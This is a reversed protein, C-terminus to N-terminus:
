KVPKKRSRSLSVNVTNSTTGLIDAIEAPPVGARDLVLILDGQTLEAQVSLLKALLANSARLQVLLEEFGVRKDAV